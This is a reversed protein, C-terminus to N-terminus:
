YPAARDTWRESVASTATRPFSIREPDGDSTYRQEPHAALQDLWYSSDLPVTGRGSRIRPIAAPDVATYPSAAPNAGVLLAADFTYHTGATSGVLALGPDAPAVGLPLAMTRVEAGPVAATITGVNGALEQQVGAADLNGLNRHTATHAGIEYGHEALWPLARPDGAFADDTVYFSARAGFEPHEAAFAELIGVACDPAPVGDATFRLQSTTSDDFTLVVPHTGAPIDLAGSIYQATTIPRYGERHLRELEARFEAPTQDYAGSPNPVIQHYMLIPVQGLEDAGVEAPEPAATSPPPAAPPAPTHVGRPQVAGPQAASGCGTLSILLCVLCGAVVVPYRKVWRINRASLSKRDM